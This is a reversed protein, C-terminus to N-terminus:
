ITFIDFESRSLFGREFTGTPSLKFTIPINNTHIWSPTSSTVTLPPNYDSQTTIFPQRPDEQPRGTIISTIKSESQSFKHQNTATDFTAQGKHPTAHFRIDSTISLKLTHHPFELHMTNNKGHVSCAPHSIHEKISFLNDSLSPVLISNALRISYSPSLQLNLSGIGTIQAKSKGDALLVTQVSATKPWPYLTDFLLPNNSMHPYAGSDVVFSHTNSPKFNAQALCASLHM